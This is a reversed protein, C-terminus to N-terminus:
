AHGAAGMLAEPRIGLKGFAAAYREQVPVDFLIAADAKVTLWANDALEKELQGATWSAYGISLLAKSVKEESALEDVIDRSTTLALEDNIQISSQWDGPPSHLVFGRDMQVPGGMMVFENHFRLPTIHGGLGFVTDMSVPSPKNVILGMAGKENHECVYVVSGGFLADDMNPMAILFHNTLYM